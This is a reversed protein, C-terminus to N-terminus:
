FAEESVPNNPGAVVVKIDRGTRPDHLADVALVGTEIWKKVIRMVRAKGQKDQVDIDLVSAVIHGVWAKSQHNERAEDHAAAREAVIQRVRAADNRTIGSFADPLAYAIAVGVWEGNALQVGTMKRWAAKESPPALNAKGDDVRFVSRAELPDIGARVADDESLRNIIRAARAAGILSGAGRVSDITAEDGNGKRIHHVIGIASRTADAVARIEGVVANIAMNDNENVEHSAVFPDIFTVGIDYGKIKDVMHQILATNPIVGEKTQTAFKIQFDRGADVFLKGRVEDPTIGYFKMAALIRRQMEDMPDELNIIWVQCSEHVDEGLLPRGTAIALAEVIQLSTKGIGGASALVSVFSRLYHRGYIWQRPVIAAEDFFDFATPWTATKLGDKDAEDVFENQYASAPAKEYDDVGTPKGEPFSVVRGRGKVPEINDFPDDDM